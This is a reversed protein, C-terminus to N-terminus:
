ILKEIIKKINEFSVSDDLKKENIIITPTSNISYKQQADIRINLIKDSIDDNNICKDFNSLSIGLNKVIKKLNGNIENINSGKTWENQKEYIADLFIIQDESDLCQLLKSANFAALDLPFDLFILQVIGKDVFSTKIKPIVNKHFTACHPCTFSSFVKIKIPANDIGMVILNNKVNTDAAFTKLNIFFCLLFTGFIYFLKIKSNSSIM